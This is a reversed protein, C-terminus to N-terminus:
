MLSNGAPAIVIELGVKKLLWIIAISALLYLDRKKEGIGQDEKRHRREGLYLSTTSGNLYGDRSFANKGQKVEMGSVM